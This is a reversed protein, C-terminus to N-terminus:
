CLEVFYQVLAILIYKCVSQVMFDNYNRSNVDCKYRSYYGDSINNRLSMIYHNITISQHILLLAIHLLINISLHTVGIFNAIKSFQYMCEYIHTNTPFM